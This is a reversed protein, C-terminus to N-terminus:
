PASQQSIGLATSTSSLHDHSSTPSASDNFTRTPITSCTFIHVNHPCYQPFSPDCPSVSLLRYDHPRYLIIFSATPATTSVICYNDICYLLQRYLPSNTSVTSIHTSDNNCNYGFVHLRLASACILALENCNLGLFPLQRWQQRPGGSWRTVM